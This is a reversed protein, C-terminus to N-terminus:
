GDLEALTFTHHTGCFECTASLHGADDALSRREAAPFSELVARVKDRSCRCGWALPRPASVTLADSHYLRYLLREPSLAPDLLEDESLSSLLLEARIWVEDSEESLLIPAQALGAPMRQIMLAAARWGRGDAAPRVATEIRTDIQESQRFYTHTCGALTDSDLAVIGQYRETDPGQDVTFALHGAGLLEPVTTGALRDADFRAHARLIGGSTVDAVLQSVPGDGQVQLTFVGDFKLATALVATLAVTEALLAAVAPPYARMPGVITDLAHSLRVLRGRVLGGGATFPQVLDGLSGDATM